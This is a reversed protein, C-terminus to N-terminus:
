IKFDPHWVDQFVCAIERELNPENQKIRHDRAGGM